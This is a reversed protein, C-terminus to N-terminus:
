ISMEKVVQGNKQNTKFLVGFAICYCFLQLWHELCCYHNVKVKMLVWAYQCTVMEQWPDMEQWHMIIDNKCIFTLLHHLLPSALFPGQPSNTM